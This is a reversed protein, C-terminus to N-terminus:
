GITESLAAQVFPGTPMAAMIRLLDLPSARESLFRAVVSPPARRFLDVLADGVEDTGLTGRVYRLFVADYFTAVPSRVAPWRPLTAPRESLRAARIAENLAAAHKQIFAFAYGTSGKAAGGSLGFPLIRPSSTPAPAVSMPLIGREVRLVEFAGAGHDSLWGRIAADHEADTLTQTTFYTDEVLAVRESEPLVYIFHAGRHQPVRFDMLTAHDPDFIPRETRVVHGVFVQALANEERAEWRGSAQIVLQARRPGATTELHVERESASLGLVRTGTTLRVNPYPRLRRLAAAYFLDGAIRVYPTSGLSRRVEGRGDFLSITRYRHQIASEFPHAGPFWFGSFTRDDSFSERGDLLEISLGSSALRVALSLGAAGAGVIAIDVNRADRKM